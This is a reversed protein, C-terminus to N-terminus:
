NSHTEHPQSDSHRCCQNWLYLVISIKAKKSSKKINVNGLTQTQSYIISIGCTGGSRYGLIRQVERRTRRSQFTQTRQGKLWSGIGETHRAHKGRQNDSGKIRDYIPTVSFLKLKKRVCFDAALTCQHCQRGQM